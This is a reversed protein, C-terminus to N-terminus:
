FAFDSVASNAYLKRNRHTRVKRLKSEADVCCKPDMPYNDSRGSKRTRANRNPELNEAQLPTLRYWTRHTQGSIWGSIGFGFRLEACLLGCPGGFERSVGLKANIGFDIDGPLRSSYALATLGFASGVLGFRGLIRITSNMKLKSNQVHSESNKSSKM